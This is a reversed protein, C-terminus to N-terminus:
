LEITGRLYLACRGAIGVRDGRATCLLEGGRASLQHARLRDRKLRESWYPVLTCHSSGTVPDEPIGVKPAFFRSVFDAQRGPATVTVAMLDLRKLAEMEPALARVEEESEYVALYDRQGAWLERPRQGLAEELAPQTIREGPARAPFDLELYDDAQRAVTLPGSRSDFTLPGAAPDLFRYVVYATALTAHGCLDVEETPMFWRLHYRGRGGVFFATESLNNETAISQMVGDPLWKELPCVAAPNGKFVADTFADVQYLPIM